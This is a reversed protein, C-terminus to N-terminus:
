QENGDGGQNEGRKGDLEVEDRPEVLLQRLVVRENLDVFGVCRGKASGVGDHQHQLDFLAGDEILGRQGFNEIHGLRQLPHIAHIIFQDVGDGVSGIAAHDHFTASHLFDLRDHFPCGLGLCFDLADTPDHM